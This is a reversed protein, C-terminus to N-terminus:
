SFSLKLHRINPSLCRIASNIEEFIIAIIRFLQYSLINYLIFISFDLFFFTMLSEFVGNRLSINRKEIEFLLYHSIIIFLKMLYLNIISYM